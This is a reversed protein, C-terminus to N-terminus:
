DRSSRSSTGHLCRMEIDVACGPSEIDRLAPHTDMDREINSIEKIARRHNRCICFENKLVTSVRPPGAVTRATPHKQVMHM